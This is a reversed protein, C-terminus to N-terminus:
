NGEARMDPTASHKFAEPDSLCAQVRSTSVQSECMLRKFHLKATCDSRFSIARQKRMCQSQAAADVAVAQLACYRELWENQTGPIPCADSARATFPVFSAFVFLLCFLKQAM